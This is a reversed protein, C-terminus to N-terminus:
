IVCEANQFFDRILRTREIQSKLFKETTQYRFVTGNTFHVDSTNKDVPEIHLVLFPNFFVCRDDKLSHTPALFLGYKQSIMLPSKRFFQLQSRISKQNAEISTGNRQCLLDIYHIMDVDRVILNHSDGVIVTKQYNYNRSIMVISSLLM